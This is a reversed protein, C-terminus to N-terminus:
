SLILIKEWTLCIICALQSPPHILNDHLCKTPNLLQLHDLPRVRSRAWFLHSNAQGANAHVVRSCTRGSAQKSWTIQVSVSSQHRIWGSGEIEGLVMGLNDLLKLLSAAQHFARCFRIKSAWAMSAISATSM